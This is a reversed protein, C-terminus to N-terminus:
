DLNRETRDGPRVADSINSMNRINRCREHKTPRAHLHAWSTAPASGAIVASSSPPRSLAEEGPAPHDPPPRCGRRRRRGAPRRGGRHGRRAARVTSSPPRTSSSGLRSGRISRGPIGPRRPSRGPSCRASSTTSPRAPRSWDILGDEKRLKPAKTVKAKDQPLIPVPGRGARRDTQAVLPAGLRALREELEGATEDPDIETRAIAIIGGADIRPTM